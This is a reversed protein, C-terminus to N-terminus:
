ILGAIGGEAQETRKKLIELKKIEMVQDTPEMQKIRTAEEMSIGYTNSLDQTQQMARPLNEGQSFFDVTDDGYVVLRKNEPIGQTLNNWVNENKALEPNARLEKIFNPFTTQVYEDTPNADITSQIIRELVHQKTFSGQGAKVNKIAKEDITDPEPDMVTVGTPEEARKIPKKPITVEGTKPNVSEMSKKGQTKKNLNELLKDISSKVRKGKAYGIRGGDAKGELNKRYLNYLVDNTSTSGSQPVAVGSGKLFRGLLGGIASDNNIPTNESESLYKRYREQLTLPLDSTPQQEKLASIIQPNSNLLRSIFGGIFM